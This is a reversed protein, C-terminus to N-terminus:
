NQNETYIINTKIQKIVHDLNKSIEDNSFRMVYIGFSEMKETRIQDLLKQDENIHYEGDLEIVFKYKHCYFDAIYKGIPHQSRIRVDLQNDRLEAWLRNEANTLNKRNEKALEFIKSEAGYFMKRPDGM